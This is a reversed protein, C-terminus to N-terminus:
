EWERFTAWSDVDDVDIKLDDDHRFYYPEFWDPCEDCGELMYTINQIAGKVKLLVPLGYTPKRKEISIFELKM